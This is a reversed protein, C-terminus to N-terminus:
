LGVDEREFTDAFLSPASCDLEEQLSLKKTCSLFPVMLILFLTFNIKM